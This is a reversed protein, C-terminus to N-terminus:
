GDFIRHLPVLNKNKVREERSGTDVRPDIGSPM